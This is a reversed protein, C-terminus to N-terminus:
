IKYLRCMSSFCSCYGTGNDIIINPLYNDEEETFDNSNFRFRREAKTTNEGRLYDTKEQNNLNYLKQENQKEEMQKSILEKNKSSDKKEDKLNLEEENIMELNAEFDKFSKVIIEIEKEAIDNELIKLIKIKTMFDNIKDSLIIKYNNINLDEEYIIKEDVPNNDNIKFKLDSISDLWYINNGPSLKIQNTKEEWPFLQLNKKDSLLLIINELGDNIFLKSLQDAITEEHDDGNIDTLIPQNITNFQIVSALGIIDPNSYDSSFFRIAQSNITFKGKIKNYFVSASNSASISDSLGGDSLILIRYSSNKDVIIKELEKFVGGLYTGGRAEEKQANIFGNKNIKRYEIVSDFTIFHVEKNEPYNIKDLFLPMVKKFIKPYTRYMSGSRDVIMILEINNFKSSNIGEKKILLQGVYGNKTKHLKTEYEALADKKEM